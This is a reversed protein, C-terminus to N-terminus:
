PTMWKTADIRVWTAKAVAVVAGDADLVASGSLFKKPHDELPWGLLVLQEGVVPTRRLDVALRGLVAPRAESLEGAWGGPCDLAAWVAAVRVADGDNSMSPDPSWTAALLGDGVPGPFIRLGDGPARGPGCVFCGAFLHAAHGAFRHTADAAEDLGVARPPVLDGLSPAARGEAVVADDDRLLITDGDSFVALPRDLPPPLRLTVETPAGYAEALLGASYGGNGSTEPGRFRRDIVIQQSM